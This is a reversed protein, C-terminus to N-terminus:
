APRYHSKEEAPKKFPTIKENNVWSVAKQKWNIPLGNKDQWGSANYYAMFTDVEINKGLQQHVYNLIEKKTPIYNNKYIDKDKDKDQVTIYGKTLPKSVTLLNHKELRSLIGKHVHNLPNLLPIDINYQFKIFDEIFIKNDSIFRVQKIAEFDEKSIETTFCNRLERKSIEYVGACDCNDYLFKVLLKQTDTLDLYWDKRWIDSDSLRKVM